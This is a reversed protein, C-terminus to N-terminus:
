TVFLILFIGYSERPSKGEQPFNELAMTNTISSSSSYTDTVSAMILFL